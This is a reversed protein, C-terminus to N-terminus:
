PATVNPTRREERSAQIEADIEADSMKDLGLERAQMQYARLNAKAQAELDGPQLFYAPGQRNSLIVLNQGNGSGCGLVYGFAPLARGGRSKRRRQRRLFGSLAQM